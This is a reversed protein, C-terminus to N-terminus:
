AVCGAPQPRHTLQVYCGGAKLVALGAVVFWKSKEFLVPVAVGVGVGFSHLYAAVRDSLQDLDKYTLEGDWSSV